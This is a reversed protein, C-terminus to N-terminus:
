DINMNGNDCNFTFYRFGNNVDDNNGDNNYRLLVNRDNIIIFAMSWIIAM